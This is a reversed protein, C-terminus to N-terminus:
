FICPDDSGIPKWLCIPNWFVNSFKTIMQFLLSSFPISVYIWCVCFLFWALVEKLQLQVEAPLSTAWGNYLDPFGSAINAMLENIMPKQEASALFLFITIYVIKRRSFHTNLKGPQLEQQTAMTLVINMIQPLHGNQFLFLFCKFVWSNEHFDERLPLHSILVPFVQPLLPFFSTLTLIM